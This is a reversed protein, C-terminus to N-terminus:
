EHALGNFLLETVFNGLKEPSLAQQKEKAKGSLPLMIFNHIIIGVLAAVIMAPDYKKLEGNKMGEKLLKILRDNNRDFYDGGLCSIKGSKAFEMAMIRRIDESQQEYRIFKDVYARIKQRIPAKSNFIADEWIANLGEMADAIVARYLDIKDKFHYYIMANNVNAAHAVERVSTGDLGQEAFLRRAAALIESRTDGEPKGSKPRRGASRKQSTTPM